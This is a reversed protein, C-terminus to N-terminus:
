PLYVQMQFILRYCRNLKLFGTKVFIHPMREHQSKNNSKPRRRIHCKSMQDECYCCGSIDKDANPKFLPIQNPVMSFLVLFVTLTDSYQSREWFLILLMLFFLLYGNHFSCVKYRFFM